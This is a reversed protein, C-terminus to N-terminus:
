KKKELLEIAGDINGNNVFENVRNWRRLYKPAERVVTSLQLVYLLSFYDHERKLSRNALADIHRVGDDLKNSYGIPYKKVGEVGSFDFDILQSKDADDCFLINSCRIDGHIDNDNHMKKLFQLLYLVQKSNSPFHKGEIYEYSIIKIDPLDIVMQFSPLYKQSLICNAKYSEIANNEFRYDYVKYIIRKSLDRCLNRQNGHPFISDSPILFSHNPINMWYDIAQLVKSLSKTTLIASFLKFSAMKQQIEGDDTPDLVKYYGMLTITPEDTRLVIVGLYFAWYDEPYCNDM